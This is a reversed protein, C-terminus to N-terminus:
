PVLCYFYSLMSIVVGVGVGMDMMAVMVIGSSFLLVVIVIGDGDPTVIGDSTDVAGAVLLAVSKDQVCSISQGKLTNSFSFFNHQICAGLEANMTSQLLVFDLWTQFLPTRMSHSCNFTAISCATLPSKLHQRPSKKLNSALFISPTLGLQNLGTTPNKTAHRLQPMWFLISCCLWM